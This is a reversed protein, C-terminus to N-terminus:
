SKKGGAWPLEDKFMVMPGQKHPTGVVVGPPASVPGSSGRKRVIPAIGSESLSPPSPKTSTERLVPLPVVSSVPGHKRRLRKLEASRKRWKM